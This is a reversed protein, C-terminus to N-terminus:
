QIRQPEMDRKDTPCKPGGQQGQTAQMIQTEVSKLIDQIEASQETKHQQLSLNVLRTYEAPFNQQLFLGYNSNIVSETLMKAQEGSKDYSTSDVIINPDFNSHIESEETPMPVM